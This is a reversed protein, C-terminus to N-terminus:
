RLSTYIIHLKLWPLYLNLPKHHLQSVIGTRQLTIPMETTPFEDNLLSYMKVVTCSYMQSLQLLIHRTYNKLWKLSVPSYIGM